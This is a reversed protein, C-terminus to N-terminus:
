HGKNCQVSQPINEPDHVPSNKPFVIQIHQENKATNLRIPLGIQHLLFELFSLFIGHM